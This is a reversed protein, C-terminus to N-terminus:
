NDEKIKRLQGLFLSFCQIILLTNPEPLRTIPHMCTVSM